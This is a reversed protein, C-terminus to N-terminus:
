IESRAAKRKSKLVTLEEWLEEKLNSHISLVGTIEPVGTESTHKELFLSKCCYYQHKNEVTNISGLTRKREPM